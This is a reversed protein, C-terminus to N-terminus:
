ITQDLDINLFASNPTDGLIYYFVRYTEGHDGGHMLITTVYKNSNSIGLLVDAIADLEYDFTPRYKHILPRLTGMDRVKPMGKGNNLRPRAVLAAGVSKPLKGDVIKPDIVFNIPGDIMTLMYLNFRTVTQPKRITEPHIWFLVGRHSFRFLQNRAREYSRVQLADETFFGEAIRRENMKDMYEFYREGMGGGPSKFELSWNRLHIFIEYFRNM